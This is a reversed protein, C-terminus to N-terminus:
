KPDGKTMLVHFSLDADIRVLKAAGSAAEFYREAEALSYALDGQVTVYKSQDYWVVFFRM